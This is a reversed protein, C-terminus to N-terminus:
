GRAEKLTLLEERHLKLEKVIVDILNVSNVALAQAAGCRYDLDRITSALVDEGDQKTRPETSQMMQQKLRALTEEITDMYDDM